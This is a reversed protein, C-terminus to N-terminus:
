GQIFRNSCRRVSGDQAQSSPTAQSARLANYHFKSVRLRTVSKLASFVVQVRLQDPIHAELTAGFNNWEARVTPFKDWGCFDM